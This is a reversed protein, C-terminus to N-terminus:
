RPTAVRIRPGASISVRRAPILDGDLVYAGEGDFTVTLSRALDDVHGEGRLRKGLLVRPMQPGLARAGLPSAVAHFRDFSEGARYTVMMHLGLDRVVAACILSYGRAPETRGDISLTCAVPELVRRALAGGVFSGVFVPLVIRAAGSYGRHARAYYEHFFNAVLGAGFIFGTREDVSLTPRETIEIAGSRVRDLLRTAYRARPWRMGWNRAVTSVTGGPAFALPPPSGECARLLATVGASYSGDGGALVVIDCGRRRIERAACDLERLSRTEYVDMGRAARAYVDLLPGSRLHEAQRNIVLAVRRV